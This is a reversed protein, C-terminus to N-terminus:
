ASLQAIANVQAPNFGHRILEPVMEDARRRRSRTTCVFRRLTELRPDALQRRSEIGFLTRAMGNLRSRLSGSDSPANCGFANADNLAVAVAMWETKSLEANGWAM